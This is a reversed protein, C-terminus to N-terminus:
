LDQTTLIAEAIPALMNDVERNWLEDRHHFTQFAM